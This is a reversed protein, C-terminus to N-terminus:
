THLNVKEYKKKSLEILIDMTNEYSVKFLSDRMNDSIILNMMHIFSNIANM